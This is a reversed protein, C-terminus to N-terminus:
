GHPMQIMGELGSVIQSLLAPYIRLHIRPTQPITRPPLVVQAQSGLTITGTTSKEIKQGQPLVEIYERLGDSLSGAYGTVQFPHFGMKKVRIPFHVVSIDEAKVRIQQSVESSTVSLNTKPSQNIEFWSDRKLRVDITQDKKLYNYLLVPLSIEDGVTLRKPLQLSLFFEQFVGLPASTRVLEGKQTSGFAEVRWTTISDALPVEIEAKGEEDTVIEPAFYLTEPFDKRVRVAQPGSQQGTFTGHSPTPMADTLGRGGLGMKGLTEGMPALSQFSSCGGLGLLLVLLVMWGKAKEIMM